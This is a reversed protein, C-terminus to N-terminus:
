STRRRWYGATCDTGSWWVTCRPGTSAPSARPGRTADALPTRTPWSATARLTTRSRPPSKPCCSAAIPHNQPLRTVCGPLRRREAATNRPSRAARLKSSQEVDLPTRLVLRRRLHFPLSEAWSPPAVIVM